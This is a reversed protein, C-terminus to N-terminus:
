SKWCERSTIARAGSLGEGMVHMGFLFMGLGGLLMLFNWFLDM